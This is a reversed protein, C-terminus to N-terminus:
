RKIGLWLDLELELGVTPIFMINKFNQAGKEGVILAGANVRIVKFFRLGLATYVPLNIAPTVYSTGNADKIPSFLVGASFGFSDLFRNKSVLRSKHMFPMTIGAGFTFNTNKLEVNSPTSVAINWAFMGVNVPLTFREKNTRVSTVKAVRYQQVLESNIFQAIEAIVMDTIFDVKEKILKNALDNREVKKSGKLVKKFKFNKQKQLEALVLKGPSMNSIGNKSVQYRLAEEILDQLGKFVKKPNNIGARKGDFRFSNNIYFSVRSRLNELLKVKQAYNLGTYAIIEFDYKSGSSLVPPIVVNFTETKNQPTRNWSYHHLNWKSGANRIFVDVYEIEKGLEGQIVLSQDFPITQRNIFSGSEFDVKIVSEQAFIASAFLVLVLMLLFLARNKM